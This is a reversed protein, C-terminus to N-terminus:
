AVASFGGTGAAYGAGAVRDCQATGSGSRILRAFGSYFERKERNSLPSVDVFDLNGPNGALFCQYFEFNSVRFEFSSVRFEEVMGESSDQIRRARRSARRPTPRVLGFGATPATMTEGRPLSRARPQCRAAPEGCASISAMRWRARGGQRAACGEVDREFGTRSMAAGRWADIGDDGGAEGPDDDAGDIRIGGM